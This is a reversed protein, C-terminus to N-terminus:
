QEKNGNVMQDMLKKGEKKLRRMWVRAIAFETGLIAIGAIITPTGPGPLFLLAVGILVVTGGAIAIVIKRAHKYLM